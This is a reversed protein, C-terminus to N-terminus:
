PMALGLCFCGVIALGLCICGKSHVPQMVIGVPPNRKVVCDKEKLMFMGPSGPAVPAGPSTNASLWGRLPATMGRPPLMFGGGCTAGPASGVRLPCPAGGPSSPPRATSGRCPVPIGVAPPPAGPASALTPLAVLASAPEDAARAESSRAETPDEAAMAVIPVSYGKQIWRSWSAAPVDSWESISQSRSFSAAPSPARAGGPPACAGAGAPQAHHCGAASGGARPQTSLNSAQPPEGSRSMRPSARSTGCPSSGRTAGQLATADPARALSTAAAATGGGCVRSRPTSHASACAHSCPDSTARGRTHPVACAGGGSPACSEGLGEQSAATREEEEAAEAAACGDHGQEGGGGDVLLKRKQKQPMNGAAAGGGNHAACTSPVGTGTAGTRAGESMLCSDYSPHRGHQFPRDGSRRAALVAAALGPMDDQVHEYVCFHLETALFPLRMCMVM